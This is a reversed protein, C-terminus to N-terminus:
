QNWKTGETVDQNSHGLHSLPHSGLWKWFSNTYKLLSHSSHVEFVKVESRTVRDCLQTSNTDFSIDEPHRGKESEMRQTQPKTHNWKRLHLIHETTLPRQVVKPSSPLPLTKTKMQTYLLSKWQHGELLCGLSPCTLIVRMLLHGWRWETTHIPKLFGEMLVLPSQAWNSPPSSHTFSTPSFTPSGIPSHHLQRQHSQWQFFVGSQYLDILNLVCDCKNSCQITM